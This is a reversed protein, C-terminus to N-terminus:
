IGRTFLEKEAQRRRTLGSVERGGARNWVLFQVSAGNTDGANLKRLLTSNKLASLGVNYAFSVLADFQFQNIPVKVLSTVGDEFRVLDRKLLDDAEDQTITLGEFVHPGTSGYGITLVGVIDRYAKLKCGEFSKLLSIGADSMKM